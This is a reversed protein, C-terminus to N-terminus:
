PQREEAESRHIVPVGNEFTVRGLHLQRMGVPYGVNPVIWAHYAIWLTGDAHTFFAAGGPGVHRGASTLIPEEQPKVCPGVPTECVAYGVAYDPGEYRNASYLLYYREEHVTMTPNEILPIEWFQDMQILRHPEGLLTRGDESLEQSYLWVPLGCCNGDNKWLLYRAGDPATFPEPDISGGENLQCLFPEDSADVFPGEPSDSVAYSICQRGSEEYRAVYYLIFEDDTHLVSPAWTLFQRVAAWDPLQPLADGNTGVREWEILDASRIVQVNMNRANTAYAYYSDDVRLVFPDPFDRPFVPNEYSQPPSAPTEVPAPPTTAAPTSIPLPLNVCATLLVIASILAVWFSVRKM